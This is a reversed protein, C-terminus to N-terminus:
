TAEDGIRALARDVVVQDFGASVMLSSFLDLIDDATQCDDPQSVSVTREATQITITM